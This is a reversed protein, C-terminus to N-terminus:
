QAGDWTGFATDAYGAEDGGTALPPLASVLLSGAVAGALTLGALSPWWGIPMRRSPRPGGAAVREILSSSAPTVVWADLVTDLRDARALLRAGEPTRALRNAAEREAAPWRAIVGGYADCLAAFRLLDM